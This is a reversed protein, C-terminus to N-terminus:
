PRSMAESARFSAGRPFLCMKEVCAPQGGAKGHGCVASLMRFKTEMMKREFCVPM